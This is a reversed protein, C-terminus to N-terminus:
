CREIGAKEIARKVRPSILAKFEGVCNYGKLWKDLATCPAIAPHCYAETLGEKIQPIKKLWVKETMQGTEKLGLTHDNYKLGARDLRKKLAGSWPAPAPWRVKHINYECALSLVIERVVPHLHFHNHADLHDCVFGTKLFAEMQTELETQLRGRWVPSFFYKVGAWVLHSSFPKKLTLGFGDVCVFHLGVKLTPHSKAMVVAEKAAPAAVMLSAATLIGKTHAEIVAQNVEACLGFDDATVILQKM